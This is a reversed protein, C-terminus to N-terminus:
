GSGTVMLGTPAQPTPDQPTESVENSVPGEQGGSAYASVAFYYTTAYDLSGIQTSFQNGVDAPTPGYVGPSTGWYVKYGAPTPGALPASWSLNVFAVGM